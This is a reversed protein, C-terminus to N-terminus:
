KITTRLADFSLFVCLIRKATVAFVNGREASYFLASRNDIDQIDLNPGKELIMRVIEEYGTLSFSDCMRLSIQM